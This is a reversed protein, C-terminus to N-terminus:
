EDKEIVDKIYEIINNVEIDRITDSNRLKAEVLGDKIRNGVTIRIPIGILDMDNFKVM